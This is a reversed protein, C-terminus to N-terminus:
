QEIVSVEADKYYVESGVAMIEATINSRYYRRASAAASASSTGVGFWFFGPVLRSKILDYEAQTLIGWHITYTQKEDVVDGIMKAKDAGSQARGTNESWIIENSPTLSVPSPLLTMAGASSGAYIRLAM